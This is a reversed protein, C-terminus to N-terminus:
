RKPRSVSAAAGINHRTGGNETNVFVCSRWNGEREHPSVVAIHQGCVAISNVAMKSGIILSPRKLPSRRASATRCSSSEDRHRDVQKPV